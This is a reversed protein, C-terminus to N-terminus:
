ECATVQCFSPCSTGQSCRQYSCINSVPPCATSLGGNVPSLNSPDLTRLTERSLTIKRFTQKKM